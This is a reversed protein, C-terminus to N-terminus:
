MEIVLAPTAVRASLATDVAFIASPFTVSAFSSVSETVVTLITSSFTVFALSNFLETITPEVEMEKPSM